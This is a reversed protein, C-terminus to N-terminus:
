FTVEINKAWDKVIKGVSGMFLEYLRTMTESRLSFYVDGKGKTSM